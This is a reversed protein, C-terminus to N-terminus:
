KKDEPKERKRLNSREELHQQLASESIRLQSGIRTAEILGKKILRYITDTSVQLAEAVQEPTFYREQMALM